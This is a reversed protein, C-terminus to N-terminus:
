QASKEPFIIKEILGNGEKDMRLQIRAGPERLKDELEKANAEPIFYKRFPYQFNGYRCEGKVYNWCSSSTLIESCDSFFQVEYESPERSDFCVCAEKKDLRSEKTDEGSVSAVYDNRQCIDTSYKPDIQFQMYHGALLDRPDYGTIPLILIKGNKLDLEREFAVSALVLIPLFISIISIYFRKM